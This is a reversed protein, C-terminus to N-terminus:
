LKPLTIIFTCGGHPTDQLSLTGKHLMVIDKAISLGLGYHMRSHRSSDVQYFRDFIYQKDTNAIGPGHDIVKIIYTHKTEELTMEISTHEPTYTLANDLLIILAQTLRQSDIPISAMIDNPLNLSLSHLHEKATVYFTDYIELLLTDLQTPQLHLTWNYKADINALTLLDTVLKGMRKCENSITTVFSIYQADVQKELISTNTQIVTVPARLEHSAAAIFDKQKQNNAEIPRIARGSFWWSFFTLSITCFVCLFIFFLRLKLIQSDDKYMNKLITIEFPTDSIMIHTNAVLFHEKYSTSIEFHTSELTSYTVNLSNTDLSSINAVKNDESIHAKALSILAERSSTTQSESKYLLTKHNQEINIILNNTAETQSLWIPSIMSCNQLYYIVTNLNNQLTLKSHSRFQSECIFLSTIAMFILVSTTVGICILTLKHRLKALM